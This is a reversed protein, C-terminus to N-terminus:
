AVAHCAREIVQQCTPVETRCFKRLRDTVLFDDQGRPAQGAAPEDQPVILDTRFGLRTALRM